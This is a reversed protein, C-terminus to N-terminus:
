NMLFFICPCLIPYSTFHKHIKLTSFLNEFIEVQLQRYVGPLLMKEGPRAMFRPSISTMDILPMQKSGLSGSFSSIAAPLCGQGVRPPLPRRRDGPGSISSEASETHRRPLGAEVLCAACTLSLRLESGLALVGAVKVLAEQEM